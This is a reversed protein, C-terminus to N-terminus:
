SEVRVQGTLGLDDIIRRIEAQTTPAATADLRCSLDVQICLDQGSRLKPILKFGFSNWSEPPVTATIHLTVATPKTPEPQPTTPAPEPSPTVPPQLTSQSVPAQQQLTAAQRLARARDKRLLYVDYDFLIDEPPLPEQFWVPQCGGDPVAGYAFGICVGIM